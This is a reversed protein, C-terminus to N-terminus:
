SRSNNSRTGAAARNHAIDVVPEGNSIPGGSPGAGAPVLRYAVASFIPLVRARQGTMDYIIGRNKNSM